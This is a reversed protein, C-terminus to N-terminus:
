FRCGNAVEAAHFLFSSYELAMSIDFSIGCKECQNLVVKEVIGYEWRAHEAGYKDNYYQRDVNIVEEIYKSETKYDYHKPTWYGKENLFERYHGGCYVGEDYYSFFGPRLFSSLESFPQSQPISWGLYAFINADHEYTSACCFPPVGCFMVVPKKTGVALKFCKKKEIDSADGTPKIEIFTDIEPLYFDPLYWLGDGLDYGEPEYVWPVGLENFFVAYRAELRSRFLHGAYATEIAKIQQGTARENM